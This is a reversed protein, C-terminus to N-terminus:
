RRLNAQCNALMEPSLDLGSLKVGRPLYKYNLGTGVSTELVADGPKAELLSMYSRFYANRDFGKLACFVRQTDDYFGGITEYLHNYKGNDGTLDEPKLFIPIGNRIPFREGSTDVLAEERGESVVHLPGGTFPSQLLAVADHQNAWPQYQVPRLLAWLSLLLAGGLCSWGFLIGGPLPQPLTMGSFRRFIEYGFACACGAAFVLSTARSEHSWMWVIVAAFWLIFFRGLGIAPTAGFGLALVFSPIAVAALPFPLTALFGPLRPSVLRHFTFPLISLVAAAFTLGLYALAQQPGTLPFKRWGFLLSPILNLALMWLFGRRPKQTGVFWVGLIPGTWAGVPSIFFGLLFLSAVAWAAILSSRSSKVNAPM